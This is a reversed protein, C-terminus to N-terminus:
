GWGERLCMGEGDQPSKREQAGWMGDAVGGTPAQTWYEGSDSWAARGRAAGVPRGTGAGSENSNSRLEAALAAQKFLIM